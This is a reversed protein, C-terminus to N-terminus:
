NKFVSETCMLNRLNFRFFNANRWTQLQQNVILIECVIAIYGNKQEAEAGFKVSM